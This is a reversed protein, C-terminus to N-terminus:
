NEWKIDGKRFILSVYQALEMYAPLDKLDSLCELVRKYYAYQIAADKMNFHQWMKDGEMLFLRYFDRMNSLKDALWM